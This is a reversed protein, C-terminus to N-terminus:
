WEWGGLLCFAGAVQVLTLLPVLISFILKRTKHRFLLMGCLGGFAGGLLAATLLVAEPVRRRRLMALCKDCMFLIFTLVSMWFFITITIM